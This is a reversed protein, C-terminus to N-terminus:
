RRPKGGSRRAGEPVLVLKRYFGQGVSRTSIGRETRLAAQLAHRDTPNMPSLTVAKNNRRAKDAARRALDILSARRRERYGEADLTYRTANPEAREVIRNVVYELADLVEGRQGVAAAADRGSLVITREGNSSIQQDIAVSFSMRALIGALVTTAETPTASTAAAAARPADASAPEDEFVAEELWRLPARMTARVRAARRGIGLMGRRANELIEIEVQDRDAGLARLARAIADDISSGEAEVSRM